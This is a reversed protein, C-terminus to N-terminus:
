SRPEPRAQALAKDFSGEDQGKGLVHLTRVSGPAVGVLLRTGDVSLLVARERTGVSVGGLVQVPGRNAMPLRAGYRKFAWALGLILLLVVVLGIVSGGMGESLLHPPASRNGQEAAVASATCLALILSVPLHKM